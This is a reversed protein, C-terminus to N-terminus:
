AHETVEQADHQSCTAHRSYAGLATMIAIHVASQGWHKGWLAGRLNDNPMNPKKGLSSM